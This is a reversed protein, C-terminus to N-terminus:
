YTYVKENVWFQVTGDELREYKIKERELASRLSEMALEQKVQLEIIKHNLAATNTVKFFELYTLIEQQQEMVHLLDLKHAQLRSPPDLASLKKWVHIQEAKAERYNVTQGSLTQNLLQESQRYLLQEKTLYAALDSQNPHFSYLVAMLLILLFGAALIVWKKMSSPHPTLSGTEEAHYFRGAAQLEELEQKMKQQAPTLM